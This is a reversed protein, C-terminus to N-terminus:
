QTLRVNKGIAIQHPQPLSEHKGTQDDFSGLQYLNYDEAHHYLPNDASSRNIEDSFSRIAAGIAPVYFPRMYADVQTDHISVVIHVTM